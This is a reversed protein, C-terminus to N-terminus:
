RSWCRPTRSIEITLLSSSTMAEDLGRRTPTRTSGFRFSLRIVVLCALAFLLGFYFPVRQNLCYSAALWLLVGGAAWTMGLVEWGKRRDLLRNGAAGAGLAGAMLWAMLAYYTDLSYTNSTGPLFSAPVVLTCVWAM